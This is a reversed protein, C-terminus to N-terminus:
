AQSWVENVLSFCSLRLKKLIYLYRILHHYKPNLRTQFLKLYLKHHEYILSKLLLSVVVCRSMVFDLIKRLLVAKNLQDFESFDQIRGPILHLYM